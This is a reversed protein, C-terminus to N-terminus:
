IYDNPNHGSVAIRVSLPKKVTKDLLGVTRRIEALANKEDVFSKIIATWMKICQIKTCKKLEERADQIGNELEVMKNIYFTMKTIKEKELDHLMMFLEKIKAEESIVPIVERMDIPPIEIEKGSMLTIVIRNTEKEFTIDDKSITERKTM